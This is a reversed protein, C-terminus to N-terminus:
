LGVTANFSAMKNVPWEKEGVCMSLYSPRVVNYGINSKM